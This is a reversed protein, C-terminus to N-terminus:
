LTWHYNNTVGSSPPNLKDSNCYVDTKCYVPIHQLATYWYMCSLPDQLAIFRCCFPWQGRLRCLCASCSQQLSSIEAKNRHLGVPSIHHENRPSQKSSLNQWLDSSLPLIWQQALPISKYSFILIRTAWIFTSLTRLLPSFHLTTWISLSYKCWFLLRIEWHQALDKALVLLMFSPPLFDERNTEPQSDSVHRQPVYRKRRGSELAFMWPVNTASGM